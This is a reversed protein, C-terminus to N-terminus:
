LFSSHAGSIVKCVETPNAIGAAVAGSCVGTTCCVLKTANSTRNVLNGAAIKRAATPKENADWFEKWPGASIAFDSALIISHMKGYFGIRSGTYM